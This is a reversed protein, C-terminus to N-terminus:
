TFLSTLLIGCVLKCLLILYIVDSVIEGFSASPNENMARAKNANSYSFNASLWGKPKNPDRKSPAIGIEEAVKAEERETSSAYASKNTRTSIRRRVKMQGKGVSERPLRGGDTPDYDDDDDDDDNEFFRKNNESSTMKSTSKADGTSTAADANTIKEM